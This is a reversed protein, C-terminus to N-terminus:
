FLNDTCSSIILLSILFIPTKIEATIPQPELITAPVTEDIVTSVVTQTVPPQSSISSTNLSYDRSNNAMAAQLDVIFKYAAYAVTTTILFGILMYFFFTKLSKFRTNSEEM